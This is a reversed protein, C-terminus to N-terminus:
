SRSSYWVRAGHYSLTWRPCDVAERRVVSSNSPEYSVIALQSFAGLRRVMAVKRLVVSAFLATMYERM